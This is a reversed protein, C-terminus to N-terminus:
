FALRLSLGGGNKGVSASVAPAQSSRRDTALLYSGLGIGVFGLGLGINAGWAASRAEDELSVAHRDTCTKDPCIADADRHKSHARVAFFTGVGAGVVGVGLAILGPVFRDGHSSAVVPPPESTPVATVPAGAAAPLAVEFRPTEKTTGVRFSKSWSTKGPATVSLRHEGPNIPHPQGLPTPAPAGDLQVDAGSADAPLVVTLQSLRQDLSALQERAITAREANAKEQALRLAQTLVDRAEIWQGAKDLCLGLALASGGGQVLQFSQRLKPCAEALQGSDMLQKGEEFLKEARARDAVPDAHAAPGLALVVLLASTSIRSPRALM